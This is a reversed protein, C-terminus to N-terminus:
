EGCWRMSESACLPVVMAVRVARRAELRRARGRVVQGVFFLMSKGMTAECCGADDNVNEAISQVGDADDDDADYGQTEMLALHGRIDIRGERQGNAEADNARCHGQTLLSGDEFLSSSVSVM